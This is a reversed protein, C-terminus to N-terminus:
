LWLPDRSPALEPGHTERTYFRIRRGDPDECAVLWGVMATLIPSHPVGCTEFHAIWAALAARDAVDLTIPDFGADLAARQPNLRLELKTGLNPVDLIVAFLAGSGDRHDMAGIRQAGLARAYFEISRELESVTFKLHHIGSFPPPINM